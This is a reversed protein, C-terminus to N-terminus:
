TTTPKSNLLYFVANILLEPNDKFYGLGTNCSNCLLGRVEGTKHNHDVSLNRNGNNIPNNCISCGSYQQTMLNNYQNIDIDYLKKMRSNRQILKWKDSNITQWKKSKEKVKEKNKQYYEREYERRESKNKSLYKKNTERIKEKNNKAWNRSNENHRKKKEEVSLKTRM